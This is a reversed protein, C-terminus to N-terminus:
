KRRSCRQSPKGVVFASYRRSNKRKFWNLRVILTSRSRRALALRSEWSIATAHCPLVLLAPQKGQIRLASRQPRRARRNVERRM